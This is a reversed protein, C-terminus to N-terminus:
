RRTKGAGRPRGSLLMLGVGAMIAMDAVNFVGTRLWGVGVNMFDVVYSGTRVRDILNGAGGGAVLAMGVAQWRPFRGSLAGVVAALTVVAVGWLFIAGRAGAGLGAGAGLFGGLNRAHELRFTDGLFSFRRGHPLFSLAIWKTLQDVAVIGLLLSLLLWRSPPEAAPEQTDTPPGSM